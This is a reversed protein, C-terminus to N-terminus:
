YGRKNWFEKWTIYGRVPKKNPDFYYEITSGPLFWSVDESGVCAMGKEEAEIYMSRDKMTLLFYLVWLLFYPITMLIKEKM